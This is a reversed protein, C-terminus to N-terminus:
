NNMLNPQRNATRKKPALQRCCWLQAPITMNVPQLRPLLTQAALIVTQPAGTKLIGLLVPIPMNNIVTRNHVWWRKPESPWLSPRCLNSWQNWCSWLIRLCTSHLLSITLIFTTTSSLGKSTIIGILQQPKVQIGQWVTIPQAPWWVGRCCSPYLCRRSERMEKRNPWCTTNKLPQQVESINAQLMPGTCVHTVTGEAEEQEVALWTPRIELIQTNLQM